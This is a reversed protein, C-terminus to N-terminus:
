EPKEVTINSPNPPVSRFRGGQPDPNNASIRKECHSAEISTSKNIYFFILFFLPAQFNYQMTRLLCEKLLSRFGQSFLSQTPFVYLILEESLSFSDSVFFFSLCFFICTRPFSTRSFFEPSDLSIEQLFRWAVSGFPPICTYIFNSAANKQQQLERVRSSFIDRQQREDQSTIFGNEDHPTYKRQLLECITNNV